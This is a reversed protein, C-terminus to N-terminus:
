MIKCVYFLYTSNTRIGIQSRQNWILLIERFNWILRQNSIQTGWIQSRIQWIQASIQLFTSLPSVRIPGFSVSIRENLTRRLSVFFSTIKWMMGDPLKKFASCGELERLRWIAAKGLHCRDGQLGRCPYLHICFCKMLAEMHLWWGGLFVPSECVRHFGHYLRCYAGGDCYFLSM